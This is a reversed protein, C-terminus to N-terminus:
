KPDAKAWGVGVTIARLTEQPDFPPMGSNSDDTQKIPPLPCGANRLARGPFVDADLHHGVPLDSSRNQGIMESLPQVRRAFGNRAFDFKTLSRLSIKRNLRNVCFNLKRKESFYSQRCADQKWLLPAEAM